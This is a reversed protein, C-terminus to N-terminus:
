IGNQSIRECDFNQNGGIWRKSNWKYQRSGLYFHRVGEKNISYKGSIDDELINSSLYVINDKQTKHCNIVFFLLLINIVTKAEM